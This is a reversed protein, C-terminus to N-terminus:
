KLKFKVLIPTNSKALEAFDKPLKTNLTLAERSQAIDARLVVSYLFEGDTTIGHNFGSFIPFFNNSADPIVKDLRVLTGEGLSYGYIGVTNQSKLSFILYDKYKLIPTLAAVKEPFTSFYGIGYKKYEDTTYLKEPASIDAPLILQYVNKIGESNFEVIEYTFPNSYFVAKSRKDYSFLPYMTYESFPEKFLGATDIKLMNTIENGAKRKILVNDKEKKMEELSVKLFETDGIRAFEDYRRIKGNIKRSGAAFEKTLTGNSKYELGDMFLTDSDRKGSLINVFHIHEGDFSFLNGGNQFLHNKSIPIRNLFVGSKNYVNVQSGMVDILVLKDDIIKFDYVQLVPSKAGDLKHYSVNEFVENVYGESAYAPAIRIKQKTIHKDLMLSQSASEDIILFLILISILRM